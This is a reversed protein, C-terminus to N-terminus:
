LEIRYGRVKVQGDMRGLCEIQGGSLYRALDGTRYLRAGAEQPCPHPAFKEATLDPHNLYGRALGEGGVCLEGIVGHPVPRQREDLIYLEANAIPRGIPGSARGAEVGADTGVEYISCGGVSETPGYENFLRIEGARERWWRVAREQLNEGGIVFSQ